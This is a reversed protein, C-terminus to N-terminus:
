RDRGQTVRPEERRELERFDVLLARVSRKWYEELDAESRGIVLQSAIDSYIATLIRTALNVDIEKRIAGVSQQGGLFAALAARKAEYIERNLNKIGHDHSSLATVELALHLSGKAKVMARYNADLTEFLGKRPDALSSETWRRSSESIEKLLEEKGQIYKYFTPKSLGAEAAIEDVKAEHYGRASFVRLAAEVIKSRIAEDYGPLVKPM